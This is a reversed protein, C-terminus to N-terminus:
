GRRAVGWGIGELAKRADATGQRVVIQKKYVKKGDQGMQPTADKVTKWLKLVYKRLYISGM